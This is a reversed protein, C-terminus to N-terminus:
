FILIRILSGCIWVFVVVVQVNLGGFVHVGELRSGLHGIETVLIRLVGIM